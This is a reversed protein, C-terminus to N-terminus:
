TDQKISTEENPVKEALKEHQENIWNYDAKNANNIRDALNKLENKKQLWRYRANVLPGSPLTHVEIEGVLANIKNLVEDREQQLDTCPFLSKLDRTYISMSALQKEEIGSIIERYVRNWKAELGSM